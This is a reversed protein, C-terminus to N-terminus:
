RAEADAVSSVGRRRQADAGTSREREWAQAATQIPDWPASLPPTYSLDLKSLEEVHMRHHIATALTDIRKAVQGSVHGVIQGGLLQGTGRDGLIRIRLPHAGPYYSKHDDAVTQVTLPAFGEARASAERLGTAAVALDFVKVVQTGLAGAFEAEGGTVNEGAIRGQKHATSGLPIYVPRQLLQHYTEAVDGAAWIGDVGTRMQRDVKLAGREGLEVGIGHALSTQPEVGVVVLALEGALEGGGQLSAKLREGDREIAVVREGTVCRVGHAELEEGVIAALELDITSLVHAGREILSVELGRRTLADAMEVGIYGGGIILASRAGADLARQLSFADDMTRLFYVAPLDFGPLRPRRPVAGTAIVLRDYDVARTRSRDALIVEGREPDIAEVRTELMLQLGAANLDKLTRHALARWDPTEGSLWFPIGCVSFNPFADGLLLQVQADPDLERARLAAAVGADSGGIIVIRSRVRLHRPENGVIQRHRCRLM